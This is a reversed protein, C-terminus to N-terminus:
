KCQFIAMGMQACGIGVVALLAVYLLRRYAGTWTVGETLRFYFLLISYRTCTVALAYVIRSSYGIAGNGQQFKAEACFIM